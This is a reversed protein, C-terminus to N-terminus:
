RKLLTAPIELLDGVELGLDSFVKASVEIAYQAPRRSPYQGLRTDLPIMTYQSVVVGDADLYAIDLPYTRKEGSVPRYMTM